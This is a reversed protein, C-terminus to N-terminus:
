EDADRYGEHRLHVAGDVPSPVNRLTQRFAAEDPALLSPSRASGCLCLARCIHASEPPSWNPAPVLRDVDSSSTPMLSRM